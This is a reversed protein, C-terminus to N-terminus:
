SGDAAEQDETQYDHSNMHRGRARLDDAGLGHNVAPRRSGFVPCAHLSKEFAFFHAPLHQCHADIRFIDTRADVTQGVGLNRVERAPDAFQRGAAVKPPHQENGQDHKQNKQVGVDHTIGIDKREHLFVCALQASPACAAAPRGDALRM